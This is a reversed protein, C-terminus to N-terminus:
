IKRVGEHTLEAALVSVSVGTGPLVLAPAIEQLPLLVFARQTARPHPIILEDNDMVVSGFCIIDLDLTRPANVGRQQPRGYDAEIDQLQRLLRIPTESGAAAFGIVANVFDASGEPCDVPASLWLSSRQFNRDFQGEASTTLEEALRNMATTILNQSDGLNSGLAIYVMELQMANGKGSFRQFRAEWGRFGAREPTYNM